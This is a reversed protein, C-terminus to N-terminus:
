NEYADPCDQKWHYIPECVSCRSVNGSSDLPNKHRVSTRSENSKYRVGHFAGRYPNRSNWYGRTQSKGYNGYFAEEKNEVQFTTEVKVAATVSNQTGAADGFIKKLQETMITLSNM